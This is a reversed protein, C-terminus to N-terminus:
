EMCVAEINSSDPDLLLAAYYDTGYDTRLGPAGHDRGGAELGAAHFCEIATCMHARLRSM